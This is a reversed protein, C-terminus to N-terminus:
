RVFKSYSYALWAVTVATCLLLTDAVSIPYEFYKSVFQIIKKCYKISIKFFFKIASVKNPIPYELFYLIYIICYTQLSPYLFTPMVSKDSLRLRQWSLLVLFMRVLYRAKLLAFLPKYYLTYM